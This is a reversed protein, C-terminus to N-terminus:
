ALPYVIHVNEQRADMPMNSADAPKLSSYEIFQDRNVTKEVKDLIHFMQRNIGVGKYSKEAPSSQVIHDLMSDWIVFTPGSNLHSFAKDIVKNPTNEMIRRETKMPIGTIWAVLSSFECLFENRGNEKKCGYDKDRHDKLVSKGSAKELLSNTVKEVIKPWIPVKADPGGAFLLDETRLVIQVPERKPSSDGEDFNYTAIELMKGGRADTDCEAIAEVSSLWTRLREIDGFAM